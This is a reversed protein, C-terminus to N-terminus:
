EDQAVKVLLVFATASPFPMKRIRGGLESLSFTIRGSVRRDKKMYHAFKVVYRRTSERPHSRPSRSRRSAPNLDAGWVSVALNQSSNIPNPSLEARPRGRGLFENPAPCPEPDGFSSSAKPGGRLTWFAAVPAFTRFYLNRASGLSTRGPSFTSFVRIMPPGLQLVEVYGDFKAGLRVPRLEEGGSFRAPSTCYEKRSRGSVAVSIARSRLTRRVALYPRCKRLLTHGSGPAGYQM